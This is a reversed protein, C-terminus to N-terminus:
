PAAQEATHLYPIGKEMWAPKPGAKLEYDFFEAM